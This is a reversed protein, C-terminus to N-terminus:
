VRVTHTTDITLTDIIRSSSSRSSQLFDLDRHREFRRPGQPWGHANQALYRQYSSFLPPSVVVLVPISVKALKWEKKFRFGRSSLTM